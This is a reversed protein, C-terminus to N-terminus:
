LDDNVFNVTMGLTLTFNNNETLLIVCDIFPKECGFLKKAVEQLTQASEKSVHSLNFRWEVYM